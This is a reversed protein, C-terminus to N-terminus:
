ESMKGIEDMLIKEEPSLGLYEALEVVRGHAFLRFALGMTASIVSSRSAAVSGGTSEGINKVLCDIERV